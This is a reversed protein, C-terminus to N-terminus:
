HNIILEWENMLCRVKGGKHKWAWSIQNQRVYKRFLLQLWQVVLEEITFKVEGEM